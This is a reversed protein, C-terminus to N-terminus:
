NMSEKLRKCDYETMSEQLNLIYAMMLKVKDIHHNSNMKYLESLRNLINIDISTMASIIINTFDNADLRHNFILLEKEIIKCFYKYTPKGIKNAIEFIQKESLRNSSKKMPM